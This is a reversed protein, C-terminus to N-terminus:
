ILNKEAEILNSAQTKPSKEKFRVGSRTPIIKKRFWTLSGGRLREIAAGDGYAIPMFIKHLNSNEMEHKKDWVDGADTLREFCAPLNSVSTLAETMAEPKYGKESILRNAYSFVESNTHDPIDGTFKGEVIVISLEIDSDHSAYGKLTSGYPIIAICISRDKLVRQIFQEINRGIENLIKRRAKSEDTIIIGALRPAM